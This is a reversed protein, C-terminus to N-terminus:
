WLFWYYIINNEVCNVRYIRQESKDLYLMMKIIDNLPECSNFHMSISSDKTTAHEVCREHLNRDTKGIYQASCGRCSFKYVVHSRSLTPTRDKTNTFFSTKTTSYSVRLNLKKDTRVSRKFPNDSPQWPQSIKARRNYYIFFRIDNKEIGPWQGM